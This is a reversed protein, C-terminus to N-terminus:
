LYVKVAHQFAPFIGVVYSASTVLTKTKSLAVAGVIIYLIGVFGLTRNWVLNLCVCAPHSDPSIDTSYLIGVGMQVLELGIGAFM